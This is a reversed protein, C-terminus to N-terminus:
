FIGSDIGLPALWDAHLAVIADNIGLKRAKEKIESEFSYSTILVLEANKVQADTPAYVPLSLVPSNRRDRLSDIFGVVNAVGDEGYKDRLYYYVKAGYIGAGWFLTKKGAIGLAIRALASDVFEASGRHDARITDFLNGPYTRDAKANALILKSGEPYFFREYAAPLHSSRDYGVCGNIATCLHGEEHPVLTGSYINGHRKHISECTLFDGSEMDLFFNSKGAECALGMTNMGGPTRQHLRILNGPEFTHCEIIEFEPDTYDNPYNKGKYPGELVSFTYPFGRSECEAAIESLREFQDPLSVLILIPNYGADYLRSFKDLFEQPNAEPHLSAKIYATKEAPLFSMLWDVDCSLNTFLFFTHKASLRRVLEEFFPHVTPEGGSMGIQWRKGSSNFFDAIQAIEELTRGRRVAKKIRPGSCFECHYNCITALEIACEADYALIKHSYTETGNKM